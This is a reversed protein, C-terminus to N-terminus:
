SAEEVPAELNDVSDPLSVKDDEFSPEFEYDDFLMMENAQIGYRRYRRELQLESLSKHRFSPMVIPNTTDTLWWPAIFEKPEVDRKTKLPLAQCGERFIMEPTDGKKLRKVIAAEEEAAIVEKLKSALSTGELINKKPEKSLNMVLDPFDSTSSINLEKVVKKGDATIEKNKWSKYSPKVSSSMPPVPKKGGDQLISFKNAYSM